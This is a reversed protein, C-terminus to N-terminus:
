SLFRNETYGPIDLINAKTEVAKLEVERLLAKNFISKFHHSIEKIITLTEPVKTTAHETILNFVHSYDHAVVIHQYKKNLLYALGENKGQMNPAGDTCVGLFNHQIDKKRKGTFIADEIQKFLTEGTSSTSNPLLLLQKTKIKEGQIYRATM